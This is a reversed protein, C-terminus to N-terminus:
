LPFTVVFMAGTETNVAVVNGHHLAAIKEVLSLGLGVGSGTAITNGRYFPDFIHALLTEPLPQHTNEVELLAKNDLQTLRLAVHGGTETYKAANDLLNSVLTALLTEDGAFSIDEHVSHSFQVNKDAFVPSHRRCMETCLESFAVKETLEKTSQLDLKSSLLTAGILKNMHSLEEDLLTVRSAAASNKEMDEELMALSVQMRALPSRMEHSINAVLERMSRIHKALNDAMHNVAVAVDTIEDKGTVTVHKELNGGAIEMVEGRLARLPKSVRRAMWFALLVGIFSLIIIGQFFMTWRDPRKPPSFSMCLRAEKTLRQVSSVETQEMDARSEQLPFLGKPDAQPRDAHPAVVGQLTIPAVTVYRIEGGDHELLAFEALPLGWLKATVARGEESANGGLINGDKDEIWVRNYKRNFVRAVASASSINLGDLASAMSRSHDTIFRKSQEKDVSYTHLLFVASQSLVILVLSYAFIRQWLHRM